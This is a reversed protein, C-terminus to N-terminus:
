SRVGIGPLPTRIVGADLHHGGGLADSAQRAASARSWAVTIPSRTPLSRARRQGPQTKLDSM